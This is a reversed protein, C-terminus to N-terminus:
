FVNEIKYIIKFLFIVILFVIILNLPFLILHNIQFILFLSLFRPPYLFFYLSGIDFRPDTVYM